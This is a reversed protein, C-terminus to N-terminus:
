GELARRGAATIRIRVIETTWGAARVTETQAEALGDRILGVLMALTFGHAVLFSKTCGSRRSRNLMELARRQEASLRPKQPSPAMQPGEYDAKINGM